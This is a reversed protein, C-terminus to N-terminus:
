ACGSVRRGDGNRNRHSAEGIAAVSQSLATDKVLIDSSAISGTVVKPIKRSSGKGFHKRLSTKTKSQWEDDGYFDKDKIRVKPRAARIKRSDNWMDFSPEIIPISAVLNEVQPHMPGGRINFTSHGNEVSASVCFDHVRSALVVDGLTYENDPICGGIGM